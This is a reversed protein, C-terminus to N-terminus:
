TPINHEIFEETKVNLCHKSPFVGNTFVYDGVVYIPGSFLQPRKLIKESGDSVDFVTIKLNKEDKIDVDCADALIIKTDVLIFSPVKEYKTSKYILIDNKYAYIVNEIVEFTFVDDDVKMANPAGFSYRVEQGFEKETQLSVLVGNTKLYCIEGNYLLLPPEWISLEIQDTFDTSVKYWSGDKECYLENAIAIFMSVADVVKILDNEPTLMYIDEDVQIFIFDKSAQISRILQEGEYIITKDSFDFRCKIINEGEVYYLWEGSEAVKISAGRVSFNINEARTGYYGNVNLVITDQKSIKAGVEHNQNVVANCIFNLDDVYEIEYSVDLRHLLCAAIAADYGSFDPVVFEDEVAVSILADFDSTQLVYYSLFELNSLFRTNIDRYFGIGEIKKYASYYDNDETYTIADNYRSQYLSLFVILFAIILLAIGLFVYIIRRAKSSKLKNCRLELCRRMYVEVLSM